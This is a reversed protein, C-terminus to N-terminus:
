DEVEVEVVTVDLREVPELLVPVVEVEEDGLLLVLVLPVSATVALVDLECVLPVVCDDKEDEEDDTEEEDEEEEEAVEEEEDGVTKSGTVVTDDAEVAVLLELEELVPVLSGSGGDDVEVEVDVSVSPVGLVVVCAVVAVDDDVVGVGDDDDEEADDAEDCDLEDLDVTDTVVGVLRSLEEEAAIVKLVAEEEVVLVLVDEVM